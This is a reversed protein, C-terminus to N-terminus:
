RGARTPEERKGKAGVRPEWGSSCVRGCSVTREREPAYMDGCMEGGDRRGVCKSFGVYLM